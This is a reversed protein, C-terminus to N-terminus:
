SINTENALWSGKVINMNKIETFGFYKNEYKECFNIIKNKDEEKVLRLLTSHIIDSKYREDMKLKKKNIKERFIERKKNIDPFGVMCIGTPIAIIGKWYIRFPEFVEDLIIKYEKLNKNLYDENKNFKEFSIINIFSFHSTGSNKKSDDYIVQGKFLFELDKIMLKFKENLFDWNLSTSIGFCRRNDKLSLKSDIKLGKNINSINKARMENYIFDLSKEIDIAYNNSIKKKFNKLNNKLNNFKLLSSGSVIMNAGSDVLLKINDKNVGGDVEIIKEPYLKRLEKVKKVTDLILKQGGYGPNVTMVLILDISNIYKELIKISTDPNIALGCLMNNEKVLKIVYKIENTSEVHFTFNNAGADSFPKIWKIPDKVMLHVDVFYKTYRKICSLLNPGFALNDVFNGDMVDFHLFDIGSDIIHDCEQIINSLDCSLLSVGLKIKSLKKNKGYKIENMLKYKLPYDTCVGYCEDPYKNKKEPMCCISNECLDLGPFTWIKNNSTLVFNDLDHSFFNTENRIKMLERIADMNKAHCYFKKNKLFNKEIKYDPSDHGLFFDGDIYWVDIEVHFGKNLAEIIYEPKNEKAKNPGNLNGRHAIYIM